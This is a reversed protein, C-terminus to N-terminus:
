DKHLQQIKLPLLIPSDYIKWHKSGEVQLVFVDHTDFHPKFGQSHPPTLYVNAQVDFGFVQELDRCFLSLPPWRRHMGELILTSGNRLEAFITDTNALRDFYKIRGAPTAEGHKTFRFEDRDLDFILRDVAEISFLRSYYGSEGRPILLPQQEYYNEFFVSVDAPHLAWDLTLDDFTEAAQANM